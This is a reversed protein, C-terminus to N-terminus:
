ITAVCGASKLVRTEQAICMPPKCLTCELGAGVENLKEETLVRDESITRKDLSVGAQKL